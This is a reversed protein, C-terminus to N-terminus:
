FGMLSLLQSIWGPRSKDTAFGEGVFQVRAEAIRSSLVTNNDAIDRPRVLGSLTITQEEGNIQLNQQGSIVLDGNRAVEIVRVSVQALLRGSRQTRGGGDTETGAGATVSHVGTRSSGVQANLSTNRQATADVTTSASATEQVIVTLVDGAKFAKSEAVLSRYTEENFLTDAEDATHAVVPILQTAGALAALICRRM